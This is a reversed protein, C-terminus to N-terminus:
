GLITLRHGTSKGCNREDSGDNCNVDGNCRNSNLICTGTDKCKWHYHDCLGQTCTHVYIALRLLIYMNTRYNVEMTHVLQNMRARDKMVTIEVTMRVMVTFNKHYAGVMIM